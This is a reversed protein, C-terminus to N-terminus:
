IESEILNSISALVISSSALNSNWATIFDIITAVTVIFGHYRLSDSRNESVILSSGVM